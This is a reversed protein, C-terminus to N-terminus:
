SSFLKARFAEPSTAFGGSFVVDDRACYYASRLERTRRAWVAQQATYSSATVSKAIVTILLAPLWTLVISFLGFAFGIAGSGTSIALWLGILVAGIISLGILNRQFQFVPPPPPALRASLKTSTASKFNTVGVNGRTTLTVASGATSSFGSDIAVSMRQVSNSERCVPCMTM